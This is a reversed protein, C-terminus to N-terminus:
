LLGMGLFSATIIIMLYVTPYFYGSGHLGSKKPNYIKKFTGGIANTTEVLRERYTSLAKENIAISIVGTAGIAAILFAGARFPPKIASLVIGILSLVGIVTAFEYKKASGIDDITKSFLTCLCQIDSMKEEELSEIEPIGWMEEVAKQMLGEFYEKAEEKTTPKLEPFLKSFESILIILTLMGLMPLAKSNGIINAYLLAAFSGALFFYNIQQAHKLKMKKKDLAEENLKKAVEMIASEDTNPKRKEKWEEWIEESTLIISNKKLSDSVKLAYGLFITGLLIFSSYITVIATSM